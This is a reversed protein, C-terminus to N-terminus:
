HMPVRGSPRAHDVPCSVLLAMTQGLTPDDSALPLRWMAYRARTEGVVNGSGAEKGLRQTEVQDLIDQLAASADFIAQELQPLTGDALEATRGTSVVDGHASMTYVLRDIADVQAM